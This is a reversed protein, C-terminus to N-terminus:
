RTRGGKLKELQESTIAIVQGGKPKIQTGGFVVWIANVAKDPMPAQGDTFIIKNETRGTFAGIAARFDTGGGGKFEMKDIDEETRINEFGYFKTDFCGVKVNSTQFIVKCERLFNRLLTDSISGSTDLVIETEPAPLEELRPSVVGDEIEANKYSWDANRQIAERLIYRWDLLQTYGKTSLDDVTRTEGKSKTGAQSTAQNALEDKLEELMSKKTESNKKFAEKEGNEAIEEQKHQLKKERQKEEFSKKENEDTAVTGNNEKENKLEENHKKVAEKWMKHTDHGVDNKTQDDMEDDGNGSGSESGAESGSGSGTSNEGQSNENQAQEQNGDQGSQGQSGQQKSQVQDSKSQENQQDQGGQKNQEGEQNKGDEGQENQQQNKNQGDQGQNGSQGQGDQKQQDQGNGNQQQQQQKEEQEKLLKEYLQEADYNIAEAMDVGGEVMKLGDRMLFQNIVADTAINWLRADKGESRLIHNFAIHCVEHALLFMQEELSLSNLFDPNYYITKGDTCATDVEKTEQYKVNVVVSGFFPYKVLMKRKLSDINYM